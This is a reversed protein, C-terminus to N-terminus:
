LKDELVLEKKKLVEIMSTLGSEGHGVKLTLHFIKLIASPLGTDIGADKSAKAVHEMSATMMKMNNMSGDYVGKDVEEAMGTFFYSLSELMEKAYSEFGAAPIKASTVMAMAHLVGVAGSFLIDLLAQYYLMAIGADDGLYDARGLLSLAPQYKEFVTEHGSYLVYSGEKGILPPDAMIGATLYEARHKEAWIFAERAAEPTDSSLNVIMKGDLSNSHSKLVEYMISYDTLSLLVLEGANLADELDLAHIAGAKALVEAKSKTRNWVTTEYGNALFIKAMAQGMPGLGIITVKKKTNNNM